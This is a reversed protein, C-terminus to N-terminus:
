MMRDQMPVDGVKKNLALRGLHAWHAIVLVFLTAGNSKVLGGSYM